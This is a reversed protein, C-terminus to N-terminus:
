APTVKSRTFEAGLVILVATVIGVIATQQETTINVGLSVLLTLAAVVLGIIRAPEAAWLAMLKDM